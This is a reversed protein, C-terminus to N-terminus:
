VPRPVFLLATKSHVHEDRPKDNSWFLKDVRRHLCSPKSFGNWLMVSPCDRKMIRHSRSTSPHQVKFDGKCERGCFGRDQAWGKRDWLTIHTSRNYSEHSDWYRSILM